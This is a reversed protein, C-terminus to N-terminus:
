GCAKGTKPTRKMRAAKVGQAADGALVASIVAQKDVFVPFLEESSYSIDMQYLGACIENLTCVACCDAKDHEWENWRLRGREDLFYTLREEGKVIRRTETSRHAHTVMRCLPVREVQFERGRSELMDMAIGLELEFGALRPITDPHETTRNMRPDLNNWTVHHFNPFYELLFAINMSLHDSNYRNKTTLIDVVVKDKHRSLNALARAINCSSGPTQSLFDQVDPRCSHMSLCVHRLGARVLEDLYDADALTQGNTCLKHMFGTEGCRRILGPLNKSMTPEGGSFMVCLYGRRRMEDISECGAELTLEEEREPNSCFRCKQNCKRTVQLYGINAM